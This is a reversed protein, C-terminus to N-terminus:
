LQGICRPDAECAAMHLFIERQFSLYSPYGIDIKTWQLLMYHRGTVYTPTGQNYFWFGERRRRFEEEIYSHFRERFEKPAEAWEDMSRIRSLEKPMPVREWVQMSAELGEGKIGTKPPKPLAIHVGSLEIIDGVTGNPCIKVVKDSYGEVDLLTNM